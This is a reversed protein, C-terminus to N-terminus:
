TLGVSLREGGAKIRVPQAHDAPRYTPLEIARAALIARREQALDPQIGRLERYEQLAATLSRRLKPAGDLMDELRSRVDLDDQRAARILYQLHAVIVRGVHTRE